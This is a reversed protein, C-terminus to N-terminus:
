IVEQTSSNEGRIQIKAKSMKGLFPKSICISFHSLPKESPDSPFFSAWLLISPLAHKLYVYAIM